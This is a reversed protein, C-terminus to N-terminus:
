HHPPSEPCSVRSRPPTGISFVALKALRIPRPSKWGCLLASPVEIFHDKGNMELISQPQGQSPCHWFLALGAIIEHLRLRSCHWRSSKPLSFKLVGSNKTTRCNKKTKGVLPLSGGFFWRGKWRDTWPEEQAM